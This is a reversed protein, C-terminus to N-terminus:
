KGKKARKTSGEAASTVAVPVEIESPDAKATGGHRLRLREILAPYRSNLLALLAPLFVLMAITMASLGLFALYGMSRLGPHTASAIAGWGALSTLASGLGAVGTHFMTQFISGSEMFRYFLFFGNNIGYGIVIPLVAVNFYNVKVNFIAMLGIMLVLGAIMPVLAILTSRLDRFSLYLLAVVLSLSMLIITKSEELVLNAFRAVILVSGTGQVSLKENQLAEVNAFPRHKLITEIALDSLGTSKLFKQDGSNAAFLALSVERETFEMGDLSVKKAADGGAKKRLAVELKPAFYALSKLSQRGVIPVSIKGTQREMQNLGDVTYLKSAVPYFFTLWGKEKSEPKSEFQSITDKPLDKVGFPKQGIITQYIPYFHRYQPPLIGPKIQSSDARFKQMLESNQVQQQYPPVYAWISITQAVIDAVAPTPPEFHEFLARAEDLSKTAIVAPSGTLEYRLAIEEQLRESAINYDIMNRSDNDWKVRTFGFSSAIVSLVMIALLIRAIRPVNVRKHWREEVEQDHLQDERAHRKLLNPFIRQFIALILPTLFFMCLFTIVIGYASIMGFESFGKFRSIILTAFAATMTLVAFFAATGTHLIAGTMAPVFDPNQDYEERFRFILQIGFDIGLGALIGGFISTILNLEGIILYTMGYVIVISYVLSLLMALIYSPRRVFVVLIVAIGILAWILTPKSSNEISDYADVYLVYAGTMGVEIGREGFKNRAVIERIKAVYDRSKQIEHMSFRPKIILTMMKRDPSVYYDDTIEKKGIRKYKEILDSLELKYEPQGLDIYFPSSREIMEDRKISIRRFAEKLDPTKVFYLIREKIARLDAKYLVYQTEPLQKLETNLEDSAKKLLEAKKLNVPMLKKYEVNAQALFEVAEKDRSQRTATLAKDFLTDGADRDTPRLTVLVYGTGGIMDTVRRAEIVEPLDSPLLDLQNSNIKVQYAFYVSAALLVM